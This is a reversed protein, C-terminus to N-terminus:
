DVYLFENSNMLVHCVSALALFEPTKAAEREEDALVIGYREAVVGSVARLEAAEMGRDYVLVEAIDGRWYEGEINGQQGIVYPGALNRQALSSARAGITAGNWQIRTEEGTTTAALVFLESREGVAEGSRFDDSFRVVGDGTLGLFTSTTSNGGKGNWNSFIERHGGGETRDSVVAIVTHEQSRVVQGDLALFDGGGDFRLVKQGAELAVFQPRRASAKQGAHHDSGSRDEWRLVAGDGDEAVGHDARLWM